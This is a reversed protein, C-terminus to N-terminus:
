NITKKVAKVIEEETPIYRDLLPQSFPAPFDPSAVRVVPSDLHTIAKEAVIAAIEAGIGATKCGPEAVVLRGTKKVSDLLCNEDLPSLTRPDIVTVGIGAKKLTEAAAVARPVMMSVAFLVPCGVSSGCLRRMQM